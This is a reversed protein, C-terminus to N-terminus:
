LHPSNGPADVPPYALSTDRAYIILATTVVVAAIVQLPWLTPLVWAVMAACIAGVMGWGIVRRSPTIVEAILCCLGAAVWLTWPNAGLWDSLHVDM